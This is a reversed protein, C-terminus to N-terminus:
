NMLRDIYGFGFMAQVDTGFLEMTTQYNEFVCVYLTLTHTKLFVYVLMTASPSVSLLFFISVTM